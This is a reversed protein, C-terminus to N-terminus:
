CNKLFQCTSLQDLFERCKISGMLERNHECSGVRHWSLGSWMRLGFKNQLNIKINDEM